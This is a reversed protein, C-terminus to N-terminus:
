SHAEPTPSYAFATRLVVPDFARVARDHRAAAEARVKQFAANTRLGAFADADLAAACAFGADAARTLAEIARSSENSLALLLGVEFLGEPDRFRMGLCVDACRVIASRDRRAFALTLDLYAGWAPNDGLRRRLPELMAIADAERGAAALAFGAVPDDHQRAEGAAQAYDGAAISTHAISTKIAPDLQMALRHADRSADLLGVYRCAQVLAALLQPDSRRERTRDLLRAFAEVSRGTEMELQAYLHHALSLEPNIALARRFADEALRELDRDAGDAYKAMMRSVRGLRAWAPAYHPDARVAELYLNRAAPWTEPSRGLSNARLFLDFARGSEPVDHQLQRADGVSLPLALSEVVRRVLGDTLQFMDSIPADATTTWLLTGGPAEVLQTSVRVRDGERLITGALVLTVDLGAAIASLDPVEAAFRVAALTSRVVVSELGSLSSAVADAVSFALFDTDADPKLVRFPLVTLRRAISM